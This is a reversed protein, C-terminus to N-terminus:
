SFNHGFLFFGFFFVFICGFEFNKRTKLYLCFAVVVPFKPSIVPVFIAVYFQLLRRASFIRGNFRICENSTRKKAVNSTHDILNQKSDIYRLSKFSAHCTFMERNM